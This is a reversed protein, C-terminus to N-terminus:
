KRKSRGPKHPSGRFMSIFDALAIVLIVGMIGVEITISLLLLCITLLEVLM